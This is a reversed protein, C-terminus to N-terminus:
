PVPEPVLQPTARRSKAQEIRQRIFARGYDKEALLQNHSSCLVRINATSAPGGKAYPDEHHLQLWASQDCHRGEASVFTCRLGDRAV